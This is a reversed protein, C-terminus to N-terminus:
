KVELPEIDCKLTDSERNQPIQREVPFDSYTEIPSETPKMSM